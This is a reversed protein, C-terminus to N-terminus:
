PTSILFQDLIVVDMVPSLRELAKDKTIFVTCGAQLCAAIQLADPARLGFKARLDAARHAVERTIEILNLNPYNALLAEYQRAVEERGLSLPRVNIEMVTLVSTVAQLRGQEVAELLEFTLNRYNPHNEFHYIFVPTDLGVRSHGSLRELLRGM